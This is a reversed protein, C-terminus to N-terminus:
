DHEEVLPDEGYEAGCEKCCKGCADEDGVGGGASELAGADEAVLKFGLEDVFESENVVMSENLGGLMLLLVGRVCAGHHAPHVGVCRKRRQGAIGIPCGGRARELMPKRDDSQLGHEM